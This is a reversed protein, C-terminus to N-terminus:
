GREDAYPIIESLETAAYVIVTDILQAIEPKRLDGISKVVTYTSGDKATRSDQLFLQEIYHQTEKVTLTMGQERYLAQKLRPIVVAFLYGYQAKSPKDAREEIVIWVNKNKFKVRVDLKFTNRQFIELKGNEDVRGSYRIEEM